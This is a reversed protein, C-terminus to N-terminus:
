EDNHVLRANATKEVSKGPTKAKTCAKACAARQALSPAPHFSGSVQVAHADRGMSVKSKTCSQGRPSLNIFKGSRSCYEVPNYRVEGTLSSISKRVYTVRGTEKDFRKEISADRAAAQAVADAARNAFSAVRINGPNQAQAEAFAFLGFAATFLFFYKM